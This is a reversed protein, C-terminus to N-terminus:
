KAAVTHKENFHKIFAKLSEWNRKLGDTDYFSPDSTVMLVDTSFDDCQQCYSHTNPWCYSSTFGHAEGVICSDGHLINLHVGNKFERSDVHKPLTVAWYPAIKSLNQLIQATKEEDQNM